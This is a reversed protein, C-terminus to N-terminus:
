ICLEEILQVCDVNVVADYEKGYESMAVIKMTSDFCYYKDPWSHYIEAYDNTWKDVYVPFPPSEDMVFRNAKEIRDHIDKHPEPENELGIPWASSHAEDIQILLLYIGKEEM